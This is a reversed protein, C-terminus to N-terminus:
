STSDNRVTSNQLNNTIVLEYAHLVSHHRLRHPRPYRHRTEERRAHIRRRLWKTRDFLQQGILFRSYVPLKHESVVALVVLNFALINGRSQRM